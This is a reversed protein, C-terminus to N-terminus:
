SCCLFIVFTGSRTHVCGGSWGAVAKGKKVTITTHGREEQLESAKYDFAKLVLDANVQEYMQAADAVLICTRRKAGHCRECQLPLTSVKLKTFGARFQPIIDRLRWVSFGAGTALILIQIARGALRWARRWPIKFFSVVKRFCSHNKKACCRGGEAAFCKSKVFPYMYPAFSGTPLPGKRLYAPVAFLSAGYVLVSLQEPSMPAVSWRTKDLLVLALIAAMCEFPMSWTRKKDKDDPVLLATDKRGLLGM